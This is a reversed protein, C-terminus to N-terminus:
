SAGEVIAAYAALVADVADERDPCPSQWRCHRCRGDRDVEHRAAVEVLRWALDPAVRASRVTLGDLARDIRRALDVLERLQTPRAPTRHSPTAVPETSERDRDAGSRELDPTSDTGPVFAGLADDPIAWAGGRVKRAGPVRGRELADLVDARPIGIRTAVETATLAAM